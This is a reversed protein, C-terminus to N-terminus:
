VYTRPPSIGWSSVKELIDTLWTNKTGKLEEGIKQSSMCTLIKSIKELIGDPFKQMLIGPCSVGNCKQKPNSKLCTGIKKGLKSIVKEQFERHARHNSILGHCLRNKLDLYPISEPFSRELATLSDIASRFTAASDKEELLDLLSLPILNEIEHVQLRLYISFSARVPIRDFRQATGGIPGGPYKIDSDTVCVTPRGQNRAALFENVINAGGGHGAEFNTAIHWNKNYIHGRILNAIFDSDSSDECLLKTAQVKITDTFWGLPIELITKNSLERFIPAEKHDLSPKVSCYFDLSEKLGSIESGKSLIKLITGRSITSLDTAKTLSSGSSHIWIFHKGERFSSLLNEFAVLAELNAPIHNLLDVVDKDISFLM